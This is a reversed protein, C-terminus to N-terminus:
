PSLKLVVLGVELGKLGVKVLKGGDVKWDVSGYLVKDVSVAGAVEPLQVSVTSNSDSYAGNAIGVMMERGKAATEIVWASVDVSGGEVVLNKILETGFLFEMADREQLVKGLAGAGENVEKTSPYIWYSLGKAGHNISLMMMNEVEERMPLGPWYDQNGFAQLVSWTPKSGQNPIAAQYSLVNDLRSSVDSLSGICNDCGCDGYTSNCPTHWPISFTANISIPYPDVLVIDAGSTYEEYYFNQCNLVLSVPHYPDLERLQRYALKTSNLAYGWGDPEDATYWMLLTERDKWRRVQEEIRTSNQFAFRMDYINWLGLRDMENWYTRLSEVPYSQDPLGGDPVINIANYGLSKYTQLGTLALNSPTVAGGDAYPAVPFLSTWGSYNNSPSQTLLAGHLNDIKVASGHTRHPLIYLDSLALSMFVQGTSPLTGTVTIPYPTLRASLVSLPFTLLTRTANLKITSSVLITATETSHIKIELEESGSGNGNNRYGAGRLAEGFFHGVEASVIFEGAGDNGLFITYRPQVTLHLLPEPSHSPFQFQGGPDLSHNTSMYPKGCWTPVDPPANFAITTPLLLLATIALFWPPASFMNYFMRIVGGSVGSTPM